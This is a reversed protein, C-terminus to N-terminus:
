IGPMVADILATTQELNGSTLAFCHAENVLRALIHLSQNDFHLANFTNQFLSRLAQGASLPHLAPTANTSYHPFIICRVPVAEIGVGLGVDCPHLYWVGGDPRHEGPPGYWCAHQGVLDPFLATNKITLPKPFAHLSGTSPDIVALEDSFYHYGRRLLALVLSSKGSGSPAPLIIGAGNCVVAGAHLLYYSRVSDALFAELECELLRFLYWHLATSTVPQANRSFSYWSHAADWTVSFTIDATWENGKCVAFSRLLRRTQQLFAPVTSRILVRRGLITYCDGM